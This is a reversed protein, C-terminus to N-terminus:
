KEDIAAVPGFAQNQYKGSYPQMTPSSLKHFLIQAIPQNKYFKIHGTDSSKWFQWWKKPSNHNTIELTLYGCWGPEIVTNQVTIGRRALSSKDHVIGVLDIPMNFKEYTAALMFGQPPLDCEDADDELVLRVDYGCSSLGFSMGHSKQREVMPALPEAVLIDKDSLVTM